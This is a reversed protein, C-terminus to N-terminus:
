TDKYVLTCTYLIYMYRNYIVNATIYIVNATIFIVNATIYIMYIYQVEGICVIHVCNHPTRSYCNM